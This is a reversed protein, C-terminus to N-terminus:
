VRQVLLQAQLDLEKSLMCEQHGLYGTGVHGDLRWGPDGDQDAPMHGWGKM